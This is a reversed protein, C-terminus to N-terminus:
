LIHFLSIRGHEWISSFNLIVEMGDKLKKGELYFYDDKRPKRKDSVTRVMTMLSHHKNFGTLM